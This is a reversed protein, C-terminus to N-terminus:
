KATAREGHSSASRDAPSGSPASDGSNSLYNFPDRPSKGGKPGAVPGNMSGPSYLPSVMETSKGSKKAM